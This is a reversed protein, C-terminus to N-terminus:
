TVDKKIQRMKIKTKRKSTKRKTKHKNRRLIHGYLKIRNNLLQVEKKRTIRETRTKRRISIFRM